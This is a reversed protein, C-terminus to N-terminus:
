GTVALLQGDHSPNAGVQMKLIESVSPLRQLQVELAAVAEQLQVGKRIIRTLRGEVERSLVKTNGLRDILSTVSDKLVPGSCCGNCVMVFASVPLIFGCIATM